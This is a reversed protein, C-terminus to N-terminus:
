CIFCVNGVLNKCSLIVVKTVKLQFNEGSRCSTYSRGIHWNQCPLSRWLKHNLPKLSCCLNLMGFKCMKGSMRFFVLCTFLELPLKLTIGYEEMYQGRIGVWSYISCFQITAFKGWVEKELWINWRFTASLFHVAAASTKEVVKDQTKLTCIATSCKCQAIFM